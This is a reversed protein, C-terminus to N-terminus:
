LNSTSCRAFPSVGYDWPPPGMPAKKRRGKHKRAAHRHSCHHSCPQGRTAVFSRFSCPYPLLSPLLPFPLLAWLQPRGPQAQGTSQGDNSSLLLQPCRDPHQLYSKTPQWKTLSGLYKPPIKVVVCCTFAFPGVSWGGTCLYQQLLTPLPSPLNCLFPFSSRFRVSFSKPLFGTKGGGYSSSSAHECGIPTVLGGTQGGKARQVQLPVTNPLKPQHNASAMPLLYSPVHEGLWHDRLRAGGGEM